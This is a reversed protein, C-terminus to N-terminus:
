TQFSASGLIIYVFRTKTRKADPSEGPEKPKAWTPPIESGVGIRWDEANGASAMIPGDPSLHLITALHGLSSPSAIAQGAGSSSGVVFDPQQQQQQQQQQDAETKSVRKRKKKPKDDAQRVFGYQWKEGGPNPKTTSVINDIIKDLRSANKKYRERWSQWTHRTVWTYEPHSDQLPTSNLFSVFVVAFLKTDGNRM